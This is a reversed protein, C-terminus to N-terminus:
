GILRPELPSCRKGAPSELRFRGIRITDSAKDHVPPEGVSAMEMGTKRDELAILAADPVAEVLGNGFLPLSKRRAIVNMEPPITLQTEHRPISFMQM